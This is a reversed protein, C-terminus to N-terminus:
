DRPVAAYEYSNGAEDTEPPNLQLIWYCPHEIKKTLNCKATEHYEQKNKNQTWKRIRVEFCERAGNTAAKRLAASQEEATMRSLYKDWDRRVTELEEADYPWRIKNWAAEFSHREATPIRGPGRVASVQLSTALQPILSRAPTESVRTRANDVSFDFDAVWPVPENIRAALSDLLPPSSDRVFIETHGLSLRKEPRATVPSVPGLVEINRVRRQMLPASPGPAQLGIAEGQNARQKEAALEAKLNVVEEELCRIRDAAAPSPATPGYKSLIERAERLQEREQQILRREKKLEEVYEAAEVGAQKILDFQEIIEKSARKLQANLFLPSTGRVFSDPLDAAIACVRDTAKRVKNAYDRSDSGESM